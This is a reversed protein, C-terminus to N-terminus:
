QSPLFYKPYRREELIYVNGYSADRSGVQVPPLEPPLPLLLRQPLKVLPEIGSDLRVLKPDLKADDASVHPLRDMAALAGLGLSTSTLFSRRSSHEM